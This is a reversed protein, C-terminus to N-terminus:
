RDSRTWAWDNPTSDAMVILSNITATDVWAKEVIVRNGAEDSFYYQDIIDQPGM